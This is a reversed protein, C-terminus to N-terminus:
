SAEYYMSEVVHVGQKMLSPLNKDFPGATVAPRGHSQSWVVLIFMLKDLTGSLCAWTAPGAREQKGLLVVDRSLLQELRRQRNFRVASTSLIASKLGSVAPEAGSSPSAVGEVLPLSVDRGVTM